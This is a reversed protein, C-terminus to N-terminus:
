AAPWSRTRPTWTTPSSGPHPHRSHERARDRPAQRSTARRQRSSDARPRFDFVSDAHVHCVRLSGEVYSRPEGDRREVLRGSRPVARARRHVRAGWTGSECHSGYVRRELDYADGPEHWDRINIIHLTGRSENARRQDLVADLFVGLPGRELDEHAVELRGGGRAPVEANRGVLMSLAAHDGLYLRCERNLFFDNQLCETLLIYRTEHSDPLATGDAHDAPRMEAASSMDRTPFARPTPDCCPSAGLSRRGCCRDFM